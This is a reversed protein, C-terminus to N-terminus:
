VKEEKKTKVWNKKKWERAIISGGKRKEIKKERKRGNEKNIEKEKM